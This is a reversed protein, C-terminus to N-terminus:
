DKGRTARLGNIGHKDFQRQWSIFEDISLDYRRCAENLTILGGLVGAVVKAKRRIVWRRTNSPPLDHVTMPLGQPDLIWPQFTSNGAATNKPFSM